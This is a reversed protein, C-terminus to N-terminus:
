AVRGGLPRVVCVLKGVMQCILAPANHRAHRHANISRGVFACQSGAMLWQGGHSHDAGAYVTDVRTLVFLQCVPQSLM